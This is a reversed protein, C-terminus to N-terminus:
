TSEGERNLIDSPERQEFAGWMVLVMAPEFWMGCFRM